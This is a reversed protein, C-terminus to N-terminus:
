KQSPKRKPNATKRTASKSRTAGLTAVQRAVTQQELAALRTQIDHLTHIIYVHTKKADIGVPSDASQIYEAITEYDKTPIKM